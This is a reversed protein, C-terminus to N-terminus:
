PERRHAAQDSPVLDELHCTAVDTPVFSVATPGSPQTGGDAGHAMVAVKSLAYYYVDFGLPELRTRGPSSMDCLADWGYCDRPPPPLTSGRAPRRAGETSISLALFIANTTSM